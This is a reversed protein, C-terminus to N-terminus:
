IQQDTTDGKNKKLKGKKKNKKKRKKEKKTLKDLVGNSRMDLEWPKKKKPANRADVVEQRRQKSMPGYMYSLKGYVLSLAAGLLILIGFSIYPYEKFIEELGIYALFKEIYPETNERNIVWGNHNCVGLLALAGAGLLFARFNKEQSPTYYQAMVQTYADHYVAVGIILGLFYYGFSIRVFLVWLGLGVLALIGIVGNIILKKKFRSQYTHYEEKTLNETKVKHEPVYIWGEEGAEFQAGFRKLVANIFFPFLYFIIM